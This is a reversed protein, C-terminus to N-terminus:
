TNVTMGPQIGARGLLHKTWDVSKLRNSKNLHVTVSGIILVWIASFCVCAVILMTNSSKRKWVEAKGNMHVVSYQKSDADKVIVATDSHGEMEVSQIRGDSTYLRSRKITCTKGNVKYKGPTIAPIAEALKGDVEVKLGNEENSVIKCKLHREGHNMLNNQFTYLEDSCQGDIVLWYKLGNALKM